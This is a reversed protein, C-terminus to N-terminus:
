TGWKLVHICGMHTQSHTNRGPTPSPAGGWVGRQALYGVYPEVPGIFPELDQKRHVIEKCVSARLDAAARSLGVRDLHQGAALMVFHLHRGHAEVTM